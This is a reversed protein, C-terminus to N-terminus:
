AVVWKPPRNNLVDDIGTAADIVMNDMAQKTTAANHATLIVNDMNFLPNNPLAPEPETVDLAAGGIDGDRLATILAGEDIIPGRSCNIIYATKKMESFQHSSISHCTQPMLPMHVSVFDSERLLEDTDDVLRVGYPVTKVYPDYAIVKMGLGISAIKAVIQGIHGLGLLGLVSGEVQYCEVKDKTDHEGQRYKESMLPINRACSLLLAITYEAVSLTNACPTNVVRIGRSKAAEIDINDTGVGHKAIVKLNHANDIVKKTIPVIRVIMGVCDKLYHILSEEDTKQAYVVAYGNEQLFHIGAESVTETVLIKKKM